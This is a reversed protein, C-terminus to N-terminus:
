SQPLWGVHNPLTHTTLSRRCFVHIFLGSCPLSLPLPSQPPAPPCSSPPSALSAPCPTPLVAPILLPHLVCRERKSRGNAVEFADVADALLGATLLSQKVAEM